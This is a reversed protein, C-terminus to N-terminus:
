AACTTLVSTEIWHEVLCMVGIGLYFIFNSIYHCREDCWKRHFVLGHSLESLKVHCAVLFSNRDNLQALDFISFTQKTIHTIIMYEVLTINHDYLYVTPCSVHETVSCTSLFAYKERFIISLRRRNVVEEKILFCPAEILLDYSLILSQNPFFVGMWHKCAM